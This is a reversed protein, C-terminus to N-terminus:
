GSAAMHCATVPSLRRLARDCIEQPARCGDAAVELVSTALRDRALQASASNEPYAFALARWAREMGDKMAATHLHDFTTRQPQVPNM